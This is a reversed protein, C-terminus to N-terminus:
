NRANQKIKKALFNFSASYSTSIAKQIEQIDSEECGPPLQIESLDCSKNAIEEVSTALNQLQTQIENM